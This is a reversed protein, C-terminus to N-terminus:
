VAEIVRSSLMPPASVTSRQEGGADAAHDDSLRRPLAAHGACKRGVSGDVGPSHSRKKAMNIAIEAIM